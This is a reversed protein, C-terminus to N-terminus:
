ELEFNIEGIIDERKWLKDPQEAALRMYHRVIHWVANEQEKTLRNTPNIAKNLNTVYKLFQAECFATLTEETWDEDGNSGDEESYWIYQENFQILEEYGNTSYSFAWGQDQWIKSDGYKENLSAVVNTAFKQTYM